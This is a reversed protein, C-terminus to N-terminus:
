RPTFSVHNISFPVILMSFVVVYTLLCLEYTKGTENEGEGGEGGGM